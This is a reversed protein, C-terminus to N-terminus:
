TIRQPPMHYRWESKRVDFRETVRDVTVVAEGSGGYAHWSSWRWMDPSDVLSAVVPNQHIYELMARFEALDRCVRDHFRRQWVPGTSGLMKRIATGSRSKIRHMAQSIDYPACTTVLCHWHDPMVVYGHVTM